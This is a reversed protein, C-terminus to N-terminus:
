VNPPFKSSLSLDTPREFVNSKMPVINAINLTIKTVTFLKNKLDIKKNM